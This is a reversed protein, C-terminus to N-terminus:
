QYPNETDLAKPGRPRPAGPPWPRRTAPPRASPRPSSGSASASPPLAPPSPRLDVTVLVSRDFGFQVDRPGHGVAEVRVVHMAADRPRRVTAPNGTMPQGDIWIRADPPTAQVSIEVDLAPSAASAVAGAARPEGSASPSASAREAPAASAVPAAAARAKRAVAFGWGGLALVVGAMLALALV